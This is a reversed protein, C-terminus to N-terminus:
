AVVMDKHLLSKVWHRSPRSESISVRPGPCLREKRNERPSKPCVPRDTQTREGVWTISTYSAPPMAPIPNSGRQRSVCVRNRAPQECCTPVTWSGGRGAAKPSRQKAKERSQFMREVADQGSLRTRTSLNVYKQPMSELLQPKRKHEETSNHNMGKHGGSRHGWSGGQATSLHHRAWPQSNWSYFEMSM